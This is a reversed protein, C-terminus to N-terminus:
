SDKAHVLLLPTQTIHAARGAVSGLLWRAVGRRGYTGMVLLDADWHNAQRVIAHAIDDGTRETSSLTTDCHCSSGAFIGAAAALAAGSPRTDRGVVIKGGGAEKTQIYAICSVLRLTLTKGLIGRIGSVSMIPMNEM